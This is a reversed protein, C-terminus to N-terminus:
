QGSLPLRVVAPQNQVVRAVTIVEGSSLKKEARDFNFHAVFNRSFIEV